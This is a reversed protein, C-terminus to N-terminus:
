RIGLRTFASDNEVICAESIASLDESEIGKPAGIAVTQTCPTREGWEEYLSVESRRNVVQLM